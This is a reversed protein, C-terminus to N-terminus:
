SVRTPLGPAVLLVIRQFPLVYAFVSGAPAVAPKWVSITSGYVPATISSLGSVLLPVSVLLWTFTAASQSFCYTSRLGDGSTIMCLM